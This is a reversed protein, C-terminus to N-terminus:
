DNSDIKIEYTVPKFNKYIIIYYNNLYNIIVSYEYLDSLTLTPIKDVIIPYLIKRTEKTLKENWWRKPKTKSNNLYDIILNYKLVEYIGRFHAKFYSNIHIFLGYLDKTFLNYSLSKFFDYPNDIYNHDLLYAFTRNFRGSNYYYNLSKEVLKIESLDEESLTSNSIIEYPPESSYKCEFKDVSDLLKTGRLFKLFGLQLEKCRLLFTENFSNIFSDLSEGPLGAILDVHIDINNTENLKKINEKLKIMNQKRFVNKNVEDNTTQIGVEFRLYKKDLRSIFNIVEDDLMDVVIEFQFTTCINNNNIFSLINMMYKKNANFTRDLFKVTTAKNDMLYKLISLVDDLPFFRVRNDLSATCYACHFPCGRSSELYVVQNKLDKVMLTALKIKSLDCMKLPNETYLGDKLYSINCVNEIQRKGKIYEILENFSDEGEGRMIFDIFSYNELFYKADYSVEPGGLAIKLPFLRKIFSSINLIKKINWLYCSFGILGYQSSNLRDTIKSIITDDSDKITFEMIECDYMCNYKIQYLAMAPHIYKTNIGILLTKM